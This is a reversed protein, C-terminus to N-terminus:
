VRLFSRKWGWDDRFLDLVGMADNDDGKEGFMFSSFSAEGGRGGAVYM